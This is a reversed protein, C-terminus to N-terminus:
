DNGDLVHCKFSYIFMKIKLEWLSWLSESYWSFGGVVECNGYPAQLRYTHKSYKSYNKFISELYQNVLNGKNSFLFNM